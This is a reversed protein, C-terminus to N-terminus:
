TITAEHKWLARYSFGYRLQNSGQTQLNSYELWQYPLIVNPKVRNNSYSIVNERESTWIANEFHRPSQICFLKSRSLESCIGGKKKKVNYDAQLKSPCLRLSCLYLNVDSSFNKSM